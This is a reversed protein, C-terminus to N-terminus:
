TRRVTTETGTGIPTRVPAVPDFTTDGPQTTITGTMPDVKTGVMKTKIRVPIVVTPVTTTEPDSEIPPHAADVRGPETADAVSPGSRPRTEIVAVQM